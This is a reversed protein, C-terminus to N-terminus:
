DVWLHNKKLSIFCFTITQCIDGLCNPYYGRVDIGVKGKHYPFKHKLQMSIWHGYLYVCTVTQFWINEM